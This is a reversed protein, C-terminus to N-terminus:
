SRDQWESQARILDNPSEISFRRGLWHYAMLSQARVLPTMIGDRVSKSTPSINLKKIDRYRLYYIGSDSFVEEQNDAISTMEQPLQFDESVSIDICEQVFGNRDFVVQSRARSRIRKHVVIQSLEQLKCYKAFNRIDTTNLLLDGHMVLLDDPEKELIGLVSQAPGLLVREYLFTAQLAQKSTIFANPLHSINVFVKGFIEPLASANVLRSIISVGGVELLPKPVENTYPRLRAGKGAALILTNMDSDRSDFSDRLIM